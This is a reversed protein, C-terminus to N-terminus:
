EDEDTPTENSMMIDHLSDLVFEKAQPAVYTCGTNDNTKKM